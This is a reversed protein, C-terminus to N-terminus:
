RLRRAARAVPPRAVALLSQGFPPQVHAEIRRVVPVVMRDYLTLWADTPQQGLRTAVLYWALAGPANVYHLDVLELDADRIVRQLSARTYRRYHGIAADFPSYLANFAPAFVLVRGCDSLQERLGQLAAVDDEIHELVNIMVATDFPVDGPANAHCITVRDSGAYREDLLAAARESLETATVCGFEALRGTFTGHGAGVELIRGTLHPAMLAVIWDAYNHAGDLDDLTSALAADSADWPKPRRRRALRQRRRVAPTSWRVKSRVVHAPRLQASSSAQPWVELLLGLARAQAAVEETLEPGDENLELDGVV